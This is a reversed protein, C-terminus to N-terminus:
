RQSTTCSPRPLPAPASTSSNTSELNRAERDVRQKKVDVESRPANPSPSFVTLVGQMAKYADEDRSEDPRSVNSLKPSARQEWGRSVSEGSLAHGLTTAARARCAKDEEEAKAVLALVAFL